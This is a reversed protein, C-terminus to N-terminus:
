LSERAVLGSLLADFAHRIVPPLNDNTYGAAVEIRDNAALNGALRACWSDFAALDTVLGSEYQDSLALAAAVFGAYREDLLLSELEAVLSTFQRRDSFSRADILERVSYGRDKLRAFINREGVIGNQRYVAKQVAQYVAKGILEGLKSHGGANDVAVGEGEVVVINDTGTGTAQHRDGSYASRIDLDQLAATKAETASIIARTMARPSLRLNSFLLMNITGPEYFAGVDQSMRVANSRVGATVLAFVEMQRYRTHAIALNDMDAGTFLLSSEEQALALSRLVEARGAALGKHHLMRWTPPPSYSNGVVSIGQRQGELTSVVTMPQKLDVRLTKHVFDDIRSHVVRAQKVYALPLDLRREAVIADPEVANDPRSFADQYIDAALWAVFYGIHTGARCTLDCAYHFIKGDRIAAVDRWGDEALIPAVASNDDGCGYIVQPDFHRWQALSVPVIAGTATFDPPIGGAARILENQFSDAGPTMIRDRGMLRLVKKRREAPIKAVKAAILRLQNRNMAVLEEARDRCNFLEGLKLLSAFAGDISRTDVEILVTASDAFYDPVEKQIASYFVVEPQLAAVRALDPAFFGGIRPKGAVEPPMDSHYTVALLPEDVGLRLLMETVTPVLSVVRQPAQSFAIDRDFADTWVSAAHGPPASLLLLATFLLTPLVHKNTMLPYEKLL